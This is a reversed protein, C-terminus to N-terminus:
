EEWEKHLIERITSFKEGRSTLPEPEPESYRDLDHAWKGKCFESCSREECAEAAEQTMFLKRSGDCLRVQWTFKGPVYPPSYPYKKM